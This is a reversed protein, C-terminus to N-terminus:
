HLFLLSKFELWKLGTFIHLSILPRIDPLIAMMVPAVEPIPTAVARSKARSPAPM